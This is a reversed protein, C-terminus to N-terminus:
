SKGGHSEDQAQLEALTADPSHVRFEDLACRDCLANGDVLTTAQRRHAETISVCIGFPLPVSPTTM